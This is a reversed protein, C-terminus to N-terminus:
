ARAEARFAFGRLAAEVLQATYPHTPRALLIDMSAEEVIRGGQIVVARSCLVQAAAVDHTILLMAQAATSPGALVDLVKAQSIADLAITPEDAVLVSSRCAMALAISVRQLQGGSLEGSFSALIREPDELGVSALLALARERAAPAPLGQKRLPIALQPGLRVMPNLATMPDQHIAALNRGDTRRSSLRVDQGDVQLLGSVNMTSPLQGLLAAATLSKGSGSAGLLAVREGPDIRLNLGDVLPRGQFSVSLDEVLLAPIM